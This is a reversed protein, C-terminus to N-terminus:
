NVLRPSCTTLSECSFSVFNWSANRITPGEHLQKLTRQAELCSEHVHRYADALAEHQGFRDLLQMQYSRDALRLHEHQVRVDVLRQGISRLAQLTVSQDNVWATSRGNSHLRRRLVLTEQAEIVLGHEDAIALALDVDIEFSAWIVAAEAAPGVLDSRGRGGLVLHLADLLLSKGAGTEGTIATLGPGIPLVAEAVIALNRIGLELLM